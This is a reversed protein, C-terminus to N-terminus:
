VCCLTNALLDLEMEEKQHLGTCRSPKISDAQISAECRPRTFLMRSIYRGKGLVTVPLMKLFWSGECRNGGPSGARNKAMLASKRISLITESVLTNSDSNRPQQPQTKASYFLIVNNM